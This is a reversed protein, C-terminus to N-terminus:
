PVPIVHTPNGCKAGIKLKKKYHWLFEQPFPLSLNHNSLLLNITYKGEMKQLKFLSLTFLSYIRETERDEDIDIQIDAPVGRHYFLILSKPFNKSQQCSL